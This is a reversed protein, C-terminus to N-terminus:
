RLGGMGGMGGPMSPMGGGMGGGRGSRVAAVNSNPGRGTRLTPFYQATRNYYMPPGHGRSNASGGGYNFGQTKARREGSRSAYPRLSDVDDEGYPSIPDYLSARDTAAAYQRNAAVQNITDMPTPQAAIAAQHPLYYGYYLSFPDGGFGTFQAYARGTPAVALIAMAAFCGLFLPRM